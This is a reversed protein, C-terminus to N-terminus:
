TSIKLWKGRDLLPFLRILHLLENHYKQCTKCIDVEIENDISAKMIGVSNIKM